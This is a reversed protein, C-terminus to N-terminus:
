KLLLLLSPNLPFSLNYLPPNFSFNSSPYVPYHPPTGENMMLNLPSLTSINAALGSKTNCYTIKKM